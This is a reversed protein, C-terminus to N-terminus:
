QKENESTKDVLIKHYNDYINEIEDLLQKKIEMNQQNLSKIKLINPDKAIDEM